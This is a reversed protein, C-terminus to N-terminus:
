EHEGELQNLQQNIKKIRRTLQNILKQRGKVNQYERVHILRSRDVIASDLECILRTHEDIEKTM